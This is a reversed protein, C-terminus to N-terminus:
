MFLRVHIIVHNAIIVHNKCLNKGCLSNKMHLLCHLIINKNEFTIKKEHNM